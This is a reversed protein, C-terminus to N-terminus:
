LKIKTQLLGAERAATYIIVVMPGLFVGIVGVLKFGVYLSILASLAGIGVADGLIKPEVVRRFITILLFLVVLGAGTYTDGTGLLYAAWPILVAGTGLIPLLDVCVILLAIALPYKLDLFLLGVLTIVYTMLSLILQSRLFGFISRRLSSLVNDVQERSKSDFLTLFTGKLTHLSYSFLYVAVLFVIFFIFLGPIGKAFAVFSTSVGTVLSSISNSFTSIWSQLQSKTDPSLSTYYLEIDAITDQVFLNADGVYQPVKNWFDILEAVVKVGLLVMLGILVITFVTSTLTAAIFRPLRFSRMLLMILPEMFIAVVLALLFPAGATFLLYLLALGVAASVIARVSM